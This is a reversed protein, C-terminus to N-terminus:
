GSACRCRRHASRWPRVFGSDGVFADTLHVPRRGRLPLGGFQVARGEAAFLDDGHDVFQGDQGHRGGLCVAACNDAIGAFQADFLGVADGGVTLSSRLIPALISGVGSPKM